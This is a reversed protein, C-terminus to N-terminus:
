EHINMYDKCNIPAVAFYLIQEKQEVYFKHM